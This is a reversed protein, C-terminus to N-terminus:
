KKLENIYFIGDHADYCELCNKCKKNGCCIICGHELAKEASTWVTFYGKIFSYPQIKPLTDIYPNSYIVNVNEPISIDLQKLARAILNPRKTWWGFNIDPNKRIINIYNIAQITNNLEGFAEIRCVEASEDIVPLRDWPLIETTLEKLSKEYKPVNNPRRKFNRLAYCKECVTGKIQSMKKCFENKCSATNISIMGEMKDGHNTCIGTEWIPSNLMASLTLKTRNLKKM